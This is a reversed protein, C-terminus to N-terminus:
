EPLEVLAGEGGPPLVPLAVFAEVLRDMTPADAAVFLFAYSKATRRLAYVFGRSRGARSWIAAPHAGAPALPELASAPPAEPFFLASSVFPHDALFARAEVGLSAYERLYPFGAWSAESLSRAAAAFRPGAVSVHSHLYDLPRPRGDPYTARAAAGFARVFEDSSVTTGRDLFGEMAPLLERAVQGAARYHVLGRALTRAFAEPPLYHRGVVGNGLAAAVAEDLMGFSVAAFPDDSACVRELMAAQPRPDMRSFLFHFLEHAVVDILSAPDGGEPAEVVSDGELQYGVVVKRSSRPQVLLHIRFVTGAPLDAQYFRAAKEVISDLFPDALLKEFRDLFASGAALGRDRWWAAFRPTFRELVERLGRADSDTSLLAMSAQYASPTGALLGAIRQREALDFAGSPALLPQPPRPPEVPRVEGGHRVRLARWTALAAEDEATLGFTTWLERYIPQGCIAVGTICDLQYVLNPQPALHLRYGLRRGEVAAHRELAPGAPATRVAEAPALCAAALAAALLLWPAARGPKAAGACM